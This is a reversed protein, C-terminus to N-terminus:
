AHPVQPVVDITYLVEYRYPDGSTADTGTETTSQTVALGGFQTAIGMTIDFDKEESGNLFKGVLHVSWSDVKDGCTAVRQRGTITGNGPPIVMSTRNIPDTGAGQFSAGPQAPFAMIEVGPPPPQFRWTGASGTEDSQVLSTLYIGADPAQGPVGAVGSGKPIVSFSDTTKYGDYLEVVDFSYSGDGAVPSTNTVQRTGTAPLSVKKKVTTGDSQYYTETGAYRFPYTAQAPVKTAVTPAELAPFADFPPSPCASPSPAPPPPGVLDFPPPPAIFPAPADALPNLYLPPPPQPSPRAANQQGLKIDVPAEKLGGDLSLAPGCGTLLVASALFLLKRIRTGGM